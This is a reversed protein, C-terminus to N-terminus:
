HGSLRAYAGTLVPSWAPDSGQQRQVQHEFRDGAARFRHRLRGGPVEQELELADGRWTGRVPVPVAGDSAFFWWLIADTGPDARFVGHGTLEGGDARVQRYDQVVVTAAADLKLVLWARATTPAAGPSTELRQTGAWTGLLPLFTPALEM